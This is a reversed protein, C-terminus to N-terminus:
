LCYKKIIRLVEGPQSQVTYAEKEVDSGFGLPRIYGDDSKCMQAVHIAEHAITRELENKWDEYNKQHTTVCIVFENRGSENLHNKPSIVYGDYEHKECVRHTDVILIFNAQRVTDLIEQHKPSVYDM